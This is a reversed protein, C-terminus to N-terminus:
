SKPRRQRTGGRDCGRLDGAAGRASGPDTATLTSARAALREFSATTYVMLNREFGQTVYAGSALEARFRAPITLRGKADLSHTYQGLFM